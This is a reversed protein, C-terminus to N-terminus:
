QNYLWVYKTDSTKQRVVGPKMYRHMAKLRPVIVMTKKIKKIKKKKNIKQRVSM